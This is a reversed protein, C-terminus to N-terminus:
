VRFTGVMSVLSKTVCIEEKVLDRYFEKIVNIADNFPRKIVCNRAKHNNAYIFFTSGNNYLSLM